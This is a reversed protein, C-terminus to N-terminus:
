ANEYRDLQSCPGFGQAWGNHWHGLLDKIAAKYQIWCYAVHNVKVPAPQHSFHFVLALITLLLILCRVRESTM